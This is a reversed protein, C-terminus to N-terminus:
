VPDDDGNFPIRILKVDYITTDSFVKFKDEDVRSISIKTGDSTAFYSQKETSNFVYCSGTQRINTTGDDTSYNIFFVGRIMKWSTVIGAYNPGIEDWTKVDPKKIATAEDANTADGARNAYNAVGATTASDASTAKTANSAVDAHSASKVKGNFYDGGEFINKLELGKIKAELPLDLYVNAYDTGNNEGKGKYFKFTDILTHEGTAPNPSGEPKYNIFLVNQDANDQFNFENHSQSLSIIRATHAKLNEQTEILKLAEAAVTAPSVEEKITNIATELLEDLTNDDTPIFLVGTKEGMWNTWEDNTGLFLKFPTGDKQNNVFDPLTVVWKGDDRVILAKGAEAATVAPLRELNNITELLEQYINVDPKEYKEATSCLISKKCLIRAPTTTHLEGAYLGMYVEDLNSLVPVNVVNGSFPVDIFQYKDGRKYVFRATKVPVVEWERDFDFTVLYDSNGCVIVVDGVVTPVKNEVKVRINKPM